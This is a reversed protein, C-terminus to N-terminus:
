FAYVRRKIQDVEVADPESNRFTIVKGDNIITRTDKRRYLELCDEITVISLDM